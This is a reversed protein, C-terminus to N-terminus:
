PGSPSVWAPQVVVPMGERAIHDVLADLVPRGRNAREDHNIIMAVAWPWGDADRLYGALAVVNRLTGTKLRAWGTAPSDKLRNRMTGDVGVTPLSMALDAAHRGHWAARLASALQWPTIRESRSLGSGNDTVLGRDDIGQARLWRRVAADALQATSRGPEAAMAPVGLELFLLRTWANDSAKNVQRLLEGWPRGQRRALVRVGQAVGPAVGPAAAERARGTWQGGLSLWVTRVAREVLEDRDILQLEARTSCGRPFAGQLTLTTTTGARAVAAPKWHDDWDACRGDVLAMTSRLELGQLPPVSAAVVGNETAKIELTLLSGALHLADPIVNYPFEPAEDFPPIGVDLRTPRYRTRDLLLDGAITRVGAQRLDVLLAWLQPLGLEADAGGRLVLDGQLTGSATDLPAASALETFGRHNPGIQDLAVISTLVKMASGPQMARHMQRGWPAAAHALPLAAVALADDPLGASALARQVAPPWPPEARAGATAALLALLGVLPALARLLM